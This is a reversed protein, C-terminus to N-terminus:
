SPNGSLRLCSRRFLQWAVILGCLGAGALGPHFEPIIVQTYNVDSLSIKQDGKAPDTNAWSFQVQSVVANGFSIFVNGASSNGGANATRGTVVTNTGNLTVLNDASGTVTTAAVITGNLLLGTIGSIQDIWTGAGYDVDFISFSVNTVGFTYNTFAIVVNLDPSNTTQNAYNFALTKQGTGGNYATNVVPYGAGWNGGSNTLTITTDNGAHSPDNNFSQSVSSGIAPAGATWNGATGWDLVAARASGFSLGTLGSVILFGWRLGGVSM